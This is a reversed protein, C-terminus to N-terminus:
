LRIMEELLVESVRKRCVLSMPNWTPFLLQQYVRGYFDAWTGLLYWGYGSFILRLRGVGPYLFLLLSLWVSRQTRVEKVDVRM